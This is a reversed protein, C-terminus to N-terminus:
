DAVLGRNLHHEVLLRKGRVDDTLEAEVGTREGPPYSGNSGAADLQRDVDSNRARNLASPEEPDCRPDSDALRRPEDAPVAPQERAQQHVVAVPGVGQDLAQSRLETVGPVSDGAEMDVCEVLEGSRFVPPALRKASKFTLSGSSARKKEGERLRLQGRSTPFTVGAPVSAARVLTKRVHPTTVSEHVRQRAARQIHCTNGTGVACSIGRSPGFPSGTSKARVITECPTASSRGFLISRSPGVNSVVSRTVRPARVTRMLASLSLSRMSTLAPLKSVFSLSVIAWM